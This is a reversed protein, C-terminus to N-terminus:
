NVPLQELLVAGLAVQERSSNSTCLHGWRSPSLSQRAEILRLTTHACTVASSTPFPREASSRPTKMTRLVRQDRM